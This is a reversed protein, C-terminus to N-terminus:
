TCTSIHAGQPDHTNKMSITYSLIFDLPLPCTSMKLTVLFNIHLQVDVPHERASYPRKAFEYLYALLSLAM